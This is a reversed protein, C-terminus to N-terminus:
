KHHPPVFNTSLCQTVCKRESYFHLTECAFQFLQTLFDKFTLRYIQTQFINHFLLITLSVCKTYVLNSILGWFCSCLKSLNRRMKNYVAKVLCVCSSLSFNPRVKLSSSKPCFQAFLSSSFM